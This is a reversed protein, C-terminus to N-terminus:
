RRLDDIRGLPRARPNRSRNWEWRHDVLKRNEARRVRILFRTLLKLDTRVLSQEVNQLGRRLGNVRQHLQIKGGANVDFDLREPAFV